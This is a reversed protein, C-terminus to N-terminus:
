LLEDESEEIFIIGNAEEHEDGEKMKLFELFEEYRKYKLCENRRHNHKKCFDCYAGRSNSVKFLQETQNNPEYKKRRIEEDSLKSEVLTLTLAEEDRVELATIITHWSQPLSSLILAVKNIEKMTEGLDTLKQFYDNMKGLHEELSQGEEMKEDYMQRMVSVKNTLTSKEHMAKLADWAAKSSRCNRVYQLQSDEVNLCILARAINDATKWETIKSTETTTPNSATAAVPIPTDIPFWIKEKILLLEVRFKWNFYNRNNLKEIIVKTNM